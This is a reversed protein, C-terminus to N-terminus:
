RTSLREHHSLEENSVSNKKRGRGKSDQDQKKIDCIGKREFMCELDIQFGFKLFCTEFHM